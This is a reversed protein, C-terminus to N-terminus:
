KVNVSPKKTSLVFGQVKARCFGKLLDLMDQAIAKEEERGVPPICIVHFLATTTDQHVGTKPSKWYDLKTGLVRKSDRYYLAGREVRSLLGIRETGKAIGFTINGQVKDLDDHGIPVLYRLTLYRLINTLTNRAVVSKKHLVKRVLVEVSTHYMHGKAGFARQHLVWPAILHHSKLTHKHHTLQTLRAAEAVLHQVEPLHEKNRIDKVVFVLLHLRPFKTFVSKEVTIRM